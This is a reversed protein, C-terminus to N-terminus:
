FEAANKTRCETTNKYRRVPESSRGTICIFPDSQLLKFNLGSNESNNLIAAFDEYQIGRGSFDLEIKVPTTSANLWLNRMVTAEAPLM